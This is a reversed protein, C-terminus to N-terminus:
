VFYHVLQGSFTLFRPGCLSNKVNKKANEQMKVIKAFFICITHCFSMQPELGCKKM